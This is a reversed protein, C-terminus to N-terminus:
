NIGKFRRRLKEGILKFGNEFYEGISFQYGYNESEIMRVMPQYVKLLLAAEYVNTFGFDLTDISWRDDFPEYGYSIERYKEVKVYEKIPKSQYYDELYDKLNNRRAVERINVLHSEVQDKNIAVAHLHDIMERVLLKYDFDVIRSDMKKAVESAEANYVPPNSFLVFNDLYPINDEEEWEKSKSKDSFPSSYSLGTSQSSIGHMSIPTQMFIFSKGLAPGLIIRGYIDPIRSNFFAGGDRDRIEKYISAKNCGHYVEPMEFTLNLTRIVKDMEKQADHFKYTPRIGKMNLLGPISSDGIDAWLYTPKIWAVGKAPHINLVSDLISLSDPILADDDGIYIIYENEFDKVDSLVKDLIFEFNGTMSLRKPTVHYQIKDGNIERKLEEVVDSTHDNSVNDSVWIKYNSFDQYLCTKITWRIMEARERTPICIHYFM